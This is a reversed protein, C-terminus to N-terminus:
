AASYRSYLERLRELTKISNYNRGKGFALFQAGILSSKGPLRHDIWKISGIIRIDKEGPIKIYVFVPEGRNFNRESEFCIGSKTINFLQMPRSFRDFLNIKNRKRFLVVAGPIHLRDFTRKDQSNSM